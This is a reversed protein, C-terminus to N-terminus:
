QVIFKTGARGGTLGESRGLVLPVPKKRRRLTMEHRLSSTPGAPLSVLTKSESSQLVCSTDPAARIDEKTSLGLEVQEELTFTSKAEEVMQQGLQGELAAMADKNKKNQIWLDRLIPISAERELRKERLYVLEDALTIKQRDADAIRADLQAMELEVQQERILGQTDFSAKTYAMAVAPIATDNPSPPNVANLNYGPSLLSAGTGVIRKIDNAHEHWTQIFCEGVALEHEQVTQVMSSSLEEEKNKENDSPLLQDEDTGPLLQPVPHAIQLPSASEAVQLLLENIMTKNVDSFHFTPVARYIERLASYSLGPSKVKKAIDEQELIKASNTVAKVILSLAVKRLRSLWAESSDGAVWGLSGDQTPLTEVGALCPRWFEILSLMNFTLGERNDLSLIDNTSTPDKPFPHREPHRQRISETRARLWKSRYHTGAPTEYWKDAYANLRVSLQAHIWYYADQFERRASSKVEEDAADTYIPRCCRYLVSLEDYLLGRVILALRGHFKRAIIRFHTIDKSNIIRSQSAQDGYIAWFERPAPEQTLTADYDQGPISSSAKSRARFQDENEKKVASVTKFESLPSAKIAPLSPTEIAISLSRPPSLHKLTVRKASATNESLTNKRKNQNSTQPPM